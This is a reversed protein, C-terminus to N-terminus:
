ATLGFLIGIVILALIGLILWLTMRSQRPGPTPAPQPAPPVTGTAADSTLPEMTTDAPTMSWSALHTLPPAPTLPVAAGDFAAGRIIVVSGTLADIRTRDAEIQAQDAGIGEVLFGALGIGVLDEIVAGEVQTEELTAVGLARALPYEGTDPDPTVFAWLADEPLDVTFLHITERDGSVLTM